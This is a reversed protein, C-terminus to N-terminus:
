KIGLKKAKRYVTARSLGLEGAVAAINGRHHSLAKKILMAEADALNIIKEPEQNSVFDASYIQQEADEVFDEPLHELSIKNSDMFILASRLVHELQRVNGRWPHSRMVSLAKADIIVDSKNLKDKLIVRIIGELDTRERLAPLKLRLGNLRYYLDERFEGNAVKEKLRCNTASIIAIDVPIAKAGGLPSVEREQIVRLLRAQLALPMEGVEDLFLTGGHAQQVRGVAGRRRSGTFAGEEHGFLESEILGEPIAACNIAVFAGHKRQGSEHIARALMEKGTGTEGEILIPLDHGIAMKAKEIVKSMAADGHNLLDLPSLRKSPAEDPLSSPVRDPLVYSSPDAKAFLQVGNHMTLRLSQFPTKKRANSLFAELTMEFLSDFQMDFSTNQKIGLQFAGSRNIAKLLGNASFVAIGEWLTGIFEARSHFRIVVDELFDVNFLRNEIMQASMRVLAMTHEQPQRHDGSIDLVGVVSGYPDLIPAASCNLFANQEVYHEAGMVFVPTKEVLATGIANTGTVEERWSVGPQLAVREAKSMFGPDGVAHLITGEADGLVVMSQTGTIHTHLNEMEAESQTLLQYNKERLENLVGVTAPEFRPNSDIPMGTKICREWSRHISEPLLGDPVEGNGLFHEKATRIQHLYKSHKM